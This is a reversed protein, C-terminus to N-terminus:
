VTILRAKNRLLGRNWLILECEICEKDIKALHLTTLFPCICEAKL